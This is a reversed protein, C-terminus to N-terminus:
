AQATQFQKMEDASPGYMGPIAVENLRLYVGLQARHHIIHSLVMSRLVAARPMAFITKGGYTLTWIVALHEDSAGAIAARAEAAGKDFTALLEARSKPAFPATSGATLELKETGITMTGWGAMEAVHGALRGLTMSKEHPKYDLKDEPVLELLKRTNAMEQDFEPLFMESISM